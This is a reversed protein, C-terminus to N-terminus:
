LIKQKEKESLMSYMNGLLGGSSNSLNLKDISTDSKENASLQSCNATSDNELYSDNCISPSNDENDSLSIECKFILSNTYATMENTFKEIRLYSDSDSDDSILTEYHKLAKKTYYELM